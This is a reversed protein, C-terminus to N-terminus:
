ERVLQNGVALYTTRQGVKRTANFRWFDAFGVRRKSGDAGVGEFVGNVIVMDGRRIVNTLTHAGSIKRQHRYFGAIEAKSSYRADARLYESEDDFLELVWDVDGADIRRYYERITQEHSM